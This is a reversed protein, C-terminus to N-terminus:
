YLAIFLNHEIVYNTATSVKNGALLNIVQGVVTVSKAINKM